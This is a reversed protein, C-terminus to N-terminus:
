PEVSMVQREDSPVGMMLRDRLRRRRDRLMRIPLAPAFFEAKLQDAAIGPFATRM